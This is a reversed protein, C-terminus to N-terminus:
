IIRFVEEIRPFSKFKTVGFNLLSACLLAVAANKSTKLEISGKLTTFKSGFDQYSPIIINDALNKLLTSRDFNDSTSGGNGSDDSSSCGMMLALGLILAIHKIM